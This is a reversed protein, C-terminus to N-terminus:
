NNLDLVVKGFKGPKELYDFAATVNEAPFVRDIPVSLEDGFLHGIRQELLAVVEAKEAHSRGRLVTGMLDARRAMLLNLPVQAIMGASTSVVVIRGRSKLFTLNEAVGEGGVLDIVADAGGSENILRAANDPTYTVIGTLANVKALTAETRGIGIPTAGLKIAIQAAAIGVGGNIGRIVVTDGISVRARTLADFATLAAEPLAAATIADIGDPSRWIHTEEAIVRNSLGGGGVIGVVKDGVAWKRVAAGVAIVDGSVELGPIDRPADPPVLHLGNRQLIDAPNLGAYRAAVLVQRAGPTPDPAEEVSVIENGGTGNFRIFRM